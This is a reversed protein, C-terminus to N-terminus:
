DLIYWKNDMEFYSEMINELIQKIRRKSEKETTIYYRFENVLTENVEELKEVERLLDKEKIEVM